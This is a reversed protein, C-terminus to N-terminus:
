SWEGHLHKVLAPTVALIGSRLPLLPVGNRV